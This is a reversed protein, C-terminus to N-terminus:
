QLNIKPIQISNKAYMNKTMKILKNLNILILFDMNNNNNKNKFLFFNM